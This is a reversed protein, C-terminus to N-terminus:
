SKALWARSELQHYKSNFSTTYTEVIGQRTSGIGEKIHTFESTKVLWVWRTNWWTFSEVSIGKDFRSTFPLNYMSSTPTSRSSQTWAWPCSTSRIMLAERLNIIGKTYTWRIDPIQGKAITTGVMNEKLYWKEHLNLCKDEASCYGLGVEVKIQRRTNGGPIELNDRFQM